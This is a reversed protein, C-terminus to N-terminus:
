ENNLVLMKNKQEEITIDLLRDIDGKIYFEPLGIYNGIINGSDDKIDESENVLYISYDRGLISKLIYLSLIKDNGMDDQYTGLVDAYWDKNGNNLGTASTLHISAYRSNIININDVLNSIYDYSGSCIENSLTHGVFNDVFFERAKQAKKTNDSLYYYYSKLYDRYYTPDYFIYSIQRLYTELITKLIRDDYYFYNVDRHFDLERNIEFLHYFESDNKNIDNENVVYCKANLLYNPKLGNKLPYHYQYDQITIFPEMNNLLEANILENNDEDFFPLSIKSDKYTILVEHNSNMVLLYVRNIEKTIMKKNLIADNFTINM